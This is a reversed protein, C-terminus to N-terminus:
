AAVQDLTYNYHGDNELCDTVKFVGFFVSRGREASIFSIIYHCDSFVDRGQKQQAAIAPKREKFADRYETHRSDHRVLRVRKGDLIKSQSVLIQKLTIM